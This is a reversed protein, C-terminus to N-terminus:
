AVAMAVGSRLWTQSRCWLEPCHRIRLGSLLALTSGADEHTRLPENVVSGRRSSTSKLEWTIVLNTLFM